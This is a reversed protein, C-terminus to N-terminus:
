ASFRDRFPYLGFMGGTHIFVLDRAGEFRGADLEKLLGNFAKGTYVPDLFVGETRALLKITDLVEDNAKAYGQGVHGDLMNIPLLSTDVNLAYKEQWLRLDGRIKQEFWDADDCVNIGFVPSNLDFLHSGAMLGAQTGGSGSATIIASPQINAAAIDAVLEECAAVYGWLGTADSAGIPISYVKLGESEYLSRMEAEVQDPQKALRAAPVYSISADALLNLLLNGDPAGAPAADGRLVLHVKLGLQAGMIATARCHNSQIGGFTLVVDAGQQQAEALCFELKRVKNGSAVSHTLDDRKLWITPLNRERCFRHLPQLPTPTQALALRPPYSIKSSM